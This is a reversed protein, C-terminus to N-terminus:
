VNWYEGRGPVAAAVIGFWIGLSTTWSRNSRSTRTCSDIESSCMRSVTPRVNSTRTSPTPRFPPTWPRVRVLLTTWTAPVMGGPDNRSTRMTAACGCWRAPSTTRAVPDAAAPEGRTGAAALQHRASSGEEREDSRGCRALALGSHGEGLPQPGLDDGHVRHEHIPPHLESRGLRSRRLSRPGRMVQHVHGFGLLRERHSPVLLEGPGHHLADIRSPAPDQQDTAGAQIEPGDDILELEGGGVRVGAIFKAGLGLNESRIAQMLAQRLEIRGRGGPDLRGVDSPGNSCELHGHEGPARERAVRGAPFAVRVLANPGRPDVNWAVDQGASDLHADSRQDIGAQEGLCGCLRHTPRPFESSALHDPESSVGPDPPEGGALAARDIHHVLQRLVELTVSSRTQFYWPVPLSKMMSSSRSVSRGRDGSSTAARHSRRNPTPASPTIRTVGSTAPPSKKM